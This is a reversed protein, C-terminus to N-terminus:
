AKKVGRMNQRILANFNTKKLLPVVLSILKVPDDKYRIITKQM